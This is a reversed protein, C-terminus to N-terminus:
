TTDVAAPRRANRGLPGALGCAMWQSLCLILPHPWVCFRGPPLVASPPGSVAPRQPGGGPWPGQGAAEERCPKLGESENGLSTDSFTVHLCSSPLAAVYCFRPGLFSRWGRQAPVSTMLRKGKSVACNLQGSSVYLWPCFTGTVAKRVFQIGIYELVTPYLLTVPATLFSQSPCESAPVPCGCQTHVLGPWRRTDPISQASSGSGAGCQLSSVCAVETVPVSPLAPVQVLQQRM